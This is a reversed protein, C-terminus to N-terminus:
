GVKGEPDHSRKQPWTSPGGKVPPPANSSGKRKGPALDSKQLWAHCDHEGSHHFMGDRGAM